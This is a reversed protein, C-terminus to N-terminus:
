GDWRDWARVSNGYNTCRENFCSAGDLGVDINCVPCRVPEKNTCKPNGCIPCPKDSM